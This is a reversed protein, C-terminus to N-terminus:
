DVSPEVRGFRVGFFVPISYWKYKEYPRSRVFQVEPGVALYSERESTGVSGEEYPVEGANQVLM